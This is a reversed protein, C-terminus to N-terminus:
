QPTFYSKGESPYGGDLQFLSMPASSPSPFNPYNNFDGWVDVGFYPQSPGAINSSDLYSFEDLGLNNGCYSNDDYTPALQDITFEPIGSFSM